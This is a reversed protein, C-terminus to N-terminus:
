FERVFAAACGIVIGILLGLFAFLQVTSRKDSTASTAGALLSILGARPAQSTVNAVYASSIAKLRIRAAAREAEAEELAGTSIDQSAGDVAAEAERLKLSAQRYEQLLAQSEPNSSNSQQVYVVVARAAVNALDMAESANSGTAIVRFVPSLPIPEASLSESAEARGLQLKREVANLVPGATVARSFAESLSSSAQAYGLFGPSNPNVQGVQLTASATYTPERLLGWGAGLLACAIACVAILLKNRGIATVAFSKPPEVFDPIAAPGQGDTPTPATSDHVAARDISETPVPM